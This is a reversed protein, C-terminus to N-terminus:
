YLCFCPVFVLVSLKCMKLKCTETYAHINYILTHIPIINKSFDRNVLWMRCIYLCVIEVESYIM